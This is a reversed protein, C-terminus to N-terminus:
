NHNGIRFKSAVRRHEPNRIPNIFESYNTESKFISYLKLKRNTRILNLQHNKLHKSWITKLKAYSLLLTKLTLENNILLLFYKSAFLIKISSRGMTYKKNRKPALSKPHCKNPNYGIGKLISTRALYGPKWTLTM